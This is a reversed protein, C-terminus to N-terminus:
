GAIEVGAYRDVSKGRLNSEGVWVRDRPVSFLRRFRQLM